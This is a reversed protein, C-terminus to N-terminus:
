SPETPWLREQKLRRLVDEPRRLNERIAVTEAAQLLAGMTKGPRVGEKQLLAATVLPQKEAMRKVFFDLKRLRARQEELFLEREHPQLRAAVTGLLLESEPHAYFRAWEEPPTKENQSLRRALCLSLGLRMDRGSIKLYHGLREVEEASADGFLEMLFFLPPARDPLHAFSACRLRVEEETVGALQPFITCLLGLRAMLALAEAFASKDVAMKQLEQWVREISVSPFLTSAHAQIAAATDPDMAFRLSTAFRVARIMRLRDEFFRQSADGITRLVRRELDDRGGVYDIVKDNVPDYFLGNVTFDRRLADEEPTGREIAEPRRGDRYDKDRRFTAVEFADGEDVVVVVGFAAGVAVTKEFLAMVEEPTADTAIDIDGAAKGLLLDRVVGGAFYATHGAQRLRLVIKRAKAEM